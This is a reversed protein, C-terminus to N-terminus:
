LLLGNYKKLCLYIYEMLGHLPNLLAVTGSTSGDSIQQDLQLLHEAEHAVSAMCTQLQADTTLFDDKLKCLHKERRTVEKLLL